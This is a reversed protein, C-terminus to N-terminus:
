QSGADRGAERSREVLDAISRMRGRLEANVERLDAETRVVRPTIMVLLETRQTSVTTTGFLNGVLPLDHLLPIGQRARSSNDRILGGLVLTEGSRVAVRSSLDRQLFTRQGTATDIQGVDIVSQDIMMSVLGGANVSPSVALMVGTDKYQVSSTRLNGDESITEASRIPQQDGVQIVATHNDQVMISPTSIVNLLNKDALASLVARISGAGNILSYSFGPNTPGITNGEGSTLQGLGTRGDGFNNQFFWQLGYRLEDNLTVELISAEILVQTPAIDLERLAAEIIRYDKRPAYILLANNFEDAVIRVTDGINVQTTGGGELNSGDRGSRVNGGSARAGFSNTGSSGIGQRSSSAGLGTRNGMTSGSSLGPAVGSDTARQRGDDGSPASGGFVGSLLSALHRSSGNQVPYVFLQPETGSDIPRDLREIWVRAQELYHKRATIVLLANLREVPLVKALGSFPGTLEIPQGGGQGGGEGRAASRAEGTVGAGASGAGAGANFLSRLAIEVEHVPAYELPFLGVSMGKLFDVDFTRVLELWGEIQTRTGALMLLNRVTDVRFLNQETTVPRLIEAMEGAGIYQLPVIVASYGVPLSSSVSPVPVTTQVAEPPGVQYRGNADPVMVIGRAVLLSELVGLLEDRPVPKHTHLTVQGELPAVISYDAELLDGLVAHVVDAVPAGEFRLSVADGVVQVRARAEPARFLQDNGPFLAPEAREPLIEGGEPEGATLTRATRSAPIQDVSSAMEAISREEEATTACGALLVAALLVAPIRTSM